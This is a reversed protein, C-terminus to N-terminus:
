FKQSLQSNTPRFRRWNNTVLDSGQESYPNAVTQDDVTKVLANIDKVFKNQISVASEPHEKVHDKIDRVTGEFENIVRLVEPRSIEMLEKEKINGYFGCCGGNEKVLKISQEQSQDLGM